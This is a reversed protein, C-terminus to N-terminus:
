GSNVTIGHSEEEIMSTGGITVSSALGGAYASGMVITACGSALIVWDSAVKILMYFIIYAIIAEVGLAVFLASNTSPKYGFRLENVKPLVTQLLNM